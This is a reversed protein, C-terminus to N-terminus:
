EKQWQLLCQVSPAMAHALKHLSASSAKRIPGAYQSNCDPCHRTAILSHCFECFCPTESDLKSWRDVMAKGSLGDMIRLLSKQSLHQIQKEAATMLHFNLVRFRECHALLLNMEVREALRIWGFVHNTKLILKDVIYDKSLKHLQGMNYKHAFIALLQAEDFSAIASDEKYLHKLVLLVANKSEDPLPVQCVRQKDNSATSMAALLVPAKSLLYSHVPLEQGEVILRVDAIEVVSDPMDHLYPLDNWASATLKSDKEDLSRKSKLDSMVASALALINEASCSRTFIKGHVIIHLEPCAPSTKGGAFSRPLDAPGSLAGSGCVLGTGPGTGHCQMGMPAPFLLRMPVRVQLSIMRMFSFSQM